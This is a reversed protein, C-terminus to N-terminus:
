IIWAEAVTTTTTVVPIVGPFVPRNFNFGTEQFYTANLLILGSHGHLGGGLPSLVSAVNKILQKRFWLLTFYTPKDKFPRITPHPFADM